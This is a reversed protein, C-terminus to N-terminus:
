PPHWGASGAGPGQIRREAIGRVFRQKRSSGSQTEPKDEECQQRDPQHERICLIRGRQRRQALPGRAHERGHEPKCANRLRDAAPEIVQARTLRQQGLIAFELVVLELLLRAQQAEGRELGLVLADALQEGGGGRQGIPHQDGLDERCALVRIAVLDHEVLALAIADIAALGDDVRGTDHALDHLDIRGGADCQQDGIGVMANRDLDVAGPQLRDRETTAIALAQRQRIQGAIGVHLDAIQEHGGAEAAAERGPIRDTFDVLKAM